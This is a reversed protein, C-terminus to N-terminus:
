SKALDAAFCSTVMLNLQEALDVEYPEVVAEGREELIRVVPRESLQQNQRAVIGARGDSLEVMLGTPYVAITRRFAEVMERDFLDGAGAYLVELGEHPLMADRYVRNSTVADFVDAIGILKAYPHIDKETLGRPYGSGNLREHHQFACHAALLPINHNSRLFEFGIETHGKIIEFETDSLKGKKQLIEHPIFMKGVDHLMAGIGIEELKSRSMGLETALALSYITVNLSHSFVYNDTLFVDSLISVVQDAKQIEDLLSGVMDTMEGGTKEFVFSKKEIGQTQFELFTHKITQYAEMRLKEPIPASIDIDDTLSDKIHVYTINFKLLRDLMRKTLRVDKQILIQGNENYVAKALTTGPEITKTAAIKM